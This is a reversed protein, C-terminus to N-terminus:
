RLYHEFEPIEHVKVNGPSATFDDDDLRALMYIDSANKKLPM